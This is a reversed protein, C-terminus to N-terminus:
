LVLNLRRALLAAEIRNAVGLVRYVANLHVKVTGESLNLERCIQKNTRGGALLRLVERQRETLRALVSDDPIAPGSAGVLQSPVYVGGSLVLRLASFMVQSSSSKPIFGAVGMEMLAEVQPRSESASLIVVPIDPHQDLVQQVSDIGDMGPMSLDLLLLDAEPHQRAQLLAEDLSAAELVEADAELQKLLLAFGDRFLAHDDALIAKM